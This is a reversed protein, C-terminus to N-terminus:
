EEKKEPPLSGGEGLNIVEEALEKYAFYAKSNPAYELITKGFKPAEALASSRPIVADFIKGEFRNRVEKAVERSLSSRRNYMTLLVGAIELSRELNNKVLEITNLLQELGELSLYECQVPIILKDAACLANITLLGLSPPSDIIIYDYSKKIDELVQRLRFERDKSNVLEVTIAALDPSAPFLDYFPITAKKQLIAHPTVQGVMVNYISLPLVKPNIGLCFTANAQSDMDVLLVKKGKEALFGALNVATTTKGTGGKANVITLVQTM